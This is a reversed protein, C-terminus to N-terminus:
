SVQRSLRVEDSIKKPDDKPDRHFGISDHHDQGHFHHHVVRLIWQQFSNDRKKCSWKPTHGNTWGMWGTFILFASAIRPEVM